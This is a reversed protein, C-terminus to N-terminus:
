PHTKGDPPRHLGKRPIRPKRPEPIRRVHHAYFLASGLTAFTIGLDGFWNLKLPGFLLSDLAHLSIVRFLILTLMAVCGAGALAVAINRRGSIRQSVWYALSLGAAAFLAILTAIIIGQYARRGQSLGEAALLVRLDTRMIEELDFVRLIILLVFLAAVSLWCRVHWAQQRHAHAIRGAFLAAVVVLGYFAAAALSFISPGDHM